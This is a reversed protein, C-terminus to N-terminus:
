STLGRMSLLPGNTWTQFDKQVNYGVQTRALFAQRTDVEDMRSDMKIENHLTLTLFYPDIVVSGTKKIQM